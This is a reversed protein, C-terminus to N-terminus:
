KAVLLALPRQLHRSSHFWVTAWSPWNLSWAPAWSSLGTEIRLLKASCNRMWSHKRRKFYCSGVDSSSSALLVAGAWNAIFCLCVTLSFVCHPNQSLGTHWLLGFDMHTVENREPASAQHIRKVIPSSQQSAKKNQQCATNKQLYLKNM